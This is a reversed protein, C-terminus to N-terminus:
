CLNKVQESTSLCLFANSKNPPLLTIKCEKINNDPLYSHASPSQAPPSLQGFPSSESNLYCMTDARLLCTFQKSFCSLFLNWTVERQYSVGVLGPHYHWHLLKNSYQLAHPSPSFGKVTLTYQACDAQLDGHPIQGTPLQQSWYCIGVRWSCGNQVDLYTIFM